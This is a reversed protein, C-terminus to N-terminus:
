SRPRRRRNKQIIGAIILGFMVLRALYFLPDLEESPHGVGLAVRSAADLVFAAAFFLFLPDGTQRWFRLFFLTAVSSAMAIAGMLMPYAEASM